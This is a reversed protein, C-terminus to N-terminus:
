DRSGITDWGSKLADEQGQVDPLTVVQQVDEMKVFGLLSWYGLCLVARTTQTSLQSHVHMLPVVPGWYIKHNISNMVSILHAKYPFIFETVVYCIVAIM